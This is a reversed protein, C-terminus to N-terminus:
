SLLTILRAVSLEDKPIFGRAGSAATLKDYDCADHSSTLVVAPGGAAALREALEFGGVHPMQVDSVVVDPRLELAARVGAEGDDAEGVVEHGELEPMLRVADRFSAHDDVIVATM